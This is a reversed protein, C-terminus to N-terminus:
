PVRNIKVKGGSAADVWLTTVEHALQVVLGPFGANAYRDGTEALVKTSGVAVWTDAGKVRYCQGGTLGTVEEATGAATHTYSAEDTELSMDIDVDMAQTREASEAAANGDPNLIKGSM